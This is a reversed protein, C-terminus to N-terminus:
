DFKIECIEIVEDRGKIKLTGLNSAAYVPHIRSYLETSTIIQGPKAIDCFRSTINVVDGVVTCDMRELSGINGIVAIGINIGIGVTLIEENKKARKKNLDSIAKQIDVAANMLNSHSEPGEFVAMVQDGMFKDVSGSHKEIIQAQKELYINIVKVVIEPSHKQAFGSFNRVDSFLLAVVGKQSSLTRSNSFLSRKIMKRALPSVFKQMQLKEKLHMAMINFERALQGLEDRSKVSIKVDLNGKGIQRAGESLEHIQKVMKHSLFYIGLISSLTVLIAITYIIKQADRIPAMAVAKSFGIGAVGLLVDGNKGNTEKRSESIPYYYEYHTDTETKSTEKITLLNKVQSETLFDKGSETFKIDTHAICEGARNIVWAYDLGSINKQRIYLVSLKIADYDQMLLNDKVEFSSLYQVTLNCMEDLKSELLRKETQQFILSMVVIVIIVVAGIIISLKRRIPFSIFLEKLFVWFTTLTEVVAITGKKIKSIFLLLFSLSAKIKERIDPNLKIM